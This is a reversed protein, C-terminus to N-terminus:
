DKTGESQMSGESILVRRRFEGSVNKGARADDEGFVVMLIHRKGTRSFDHTIWIMGDASQQGDPYSVGSREDLMLGGDWSQGDDKSVFAMLKERGTRENLSGHKVMLLDGSQLRRIFFRANPHPISSPKLDSWSVGRDTSVSEGIGYKTRVLLWISGDRREIFMHEDFSRDDVPVNCGGRVTWTKGQDTSVVFRASRDTKRWTSAPLVWESTSLVLPKCMMVGDTLRQAVSYEPTGSDPNNIKLRWVGAITGDHGITQAWFWHLQGDPAMWVQPDYVRLPGEEDPDVVLVEQWSEGQDGSTSLVVYNNHDEGATKGAYWTAWLRGAPSVALSSIGQFARNTVAHLPLGPGVHQPPQLITKAGVVDQAGSPSCPFNIAHAFIFLILLYKM